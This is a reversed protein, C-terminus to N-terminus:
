SSGQFHGYMTIEKWVVQHQTGVPTLLFLIFTNLTRWTDTNTTRYEYLLYLPTTGTNISKYYYVLYFQTGRLRPWGVSRPFCLQQLYIGDKKFTHPQGEERGEQHSQSAGIFGEFWLPMHTHTHTHTHTQDRKGTTTFLIRSHKRM